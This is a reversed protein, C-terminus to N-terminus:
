NETKSAASRNNPLHPEDNTLLWRDFSGNEFTATSTAMLGFGGGLLMLGVIMCLGVAPLSLRGDAGYYQLIGMAVALMLAIGSASSALGVIFRQVQFPQRQSDSTPISQQFSSRTTPRSEAKIFSRPSQSKQTESVAPKTSIQKNM